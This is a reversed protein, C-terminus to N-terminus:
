NKFLHKRKKFYIHNAYVIAGQVAAQMVLSMLQSADFGNTIILFAVAYAIGLITPIVLYLTLLLPAEKKFKALKGRIILAMIGFLALMVGYIIDVIKYKSGLQSFTIILDEVGSEAFFEFPGFIYDAATVFSSIAEVFLYFKILISFWLMPQPIVNPISGMNNVGMTGGQRAKVSMEAGCKTCILSYDPIQSNCKHCLM